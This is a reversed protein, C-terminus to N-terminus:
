IPEFNSIKWQGGVKNLTVRISSATNTPPDAGVTVTQDVFVLVVADNDTASVAAAAPVSAAASIHKQKAGPIVVDDTLSTYSNRFEGTLLDRAAGLDKEVTEARYSLLAVTCDRAAQASAIRAIDADRASSDLWKLYGAAMALLLALGPLVGYALV